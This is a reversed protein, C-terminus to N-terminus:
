YVSWRRLKGVTVPIIESVDVTLRYVERAREYRHRPDFLTLIVDWCDSNPRCIQSREKTITDLKLNNKIAEKYVSAV